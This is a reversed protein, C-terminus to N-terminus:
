NVRLVVKGMSRNSELYAHAEAARKWDFVRDIVPKLRGDRLRPL